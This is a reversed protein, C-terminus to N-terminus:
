ESPMVGELEWSIEQWNPPRRRGSAKYALPTCARQRKGATFKKRSGRTNKKSSRYAKCKAENRGIKRGKKGGPASQQKAM